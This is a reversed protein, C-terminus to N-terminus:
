ATVVGDHFSYSVKQKFQKSQLRKKKDAVSEVTLQGVLVKRAESANLRIMKMAKKDHTEREFIYYYQLHGASVHPIRTGRKFAPTRSAIGVHTCVWDGSQIGLYKSTRM